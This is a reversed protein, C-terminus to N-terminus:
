INRIQVTLSLIGVRCLSLPRIYIAKWLSIEVLFTNNTVHPIYLYHVLWKKWGNANKVYFKALASGAIFVHTCNLWM